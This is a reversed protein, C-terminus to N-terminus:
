TFQNLYLIYGYVCAFSVTQSTESKQYFTGITKSIEFYAFSYVCREHYSHKATSLM